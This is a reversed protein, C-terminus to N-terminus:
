AGGINNMCSRQWFYRTCESVYQLNPGTAFLLGDLGAEKMKNLIRTRRPTM